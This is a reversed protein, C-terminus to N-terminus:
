KRLADPVEGVATPDIPEIGAVPTAILDQNAKFEEAKVKGLGLDVHLVHDRRQEWWDENLAVELVAGQIADAPVEFVRTLHWDIGAPQAGGPWRGDASYRRGDRAILTFGTLAQPRKKVRTTVDVVVFHGPTSEVDYIGEVGLAPRVRDITVTAYRLDASDGVKANVIFPDATAPNRGSETPLAETVARGAALAALVFVTTTALTVPKNM